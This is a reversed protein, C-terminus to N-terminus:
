ALVQELAHFTGAEGIKLKERPCDGVWGQQVKGWEKLKVVEEKQRLAKPYM